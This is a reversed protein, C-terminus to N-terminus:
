YPVAHVAHQWGGVAHVRSTGGTDQHCPSVPPHKGGRQGIALGAMMIQGYGVVRLAARTRACPLWPLWVVGGDCWVAVVHVGHCGFSVVVPCGYRRTTAGCMVEIKHDRKRENAVQRTTSSTQLVRTWCMAAVRWSM